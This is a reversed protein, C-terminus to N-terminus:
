NISPIPIYEFGNVSGYTVFFKENKDNTVICLFKIEYGGKYQSIPMSQNSAYYFSAGQWSPTWTGSAQLIKYEKPIEKIFILNKPSFKINIIDKESITGNKCTKPQNKDDGDIPNSWTKIKYFSTTKQQAMTITPASLIAATLGFTFINSFNKFM